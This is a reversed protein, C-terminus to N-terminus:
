NQAPAECYKVQAIIAKAIKMVVYSMGKSCLKRKERNVKQSYNALSHTSPQKSKHVPHKEYGRKKDKTSCGDPFRDDTEYSSSGPLQLCRFFAGVPDTPCFVRCYDCCLSLHQATPSDCIERQISSITSPITLTSPLWPTRV